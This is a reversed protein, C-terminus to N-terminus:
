SIVNLAEFKLFKGSSFAQNYYVGGGRQFVEVRELLHPWNRGQKVM